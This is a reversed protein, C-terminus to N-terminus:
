WGQLTPENPPPGASKCPPGWIKKLHLFAPSCVLALPALVKVPPGPGRPMGSAVPSGTVKHLQIYLGKM